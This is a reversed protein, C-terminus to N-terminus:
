AVLSTCPVGYKWVEGAAVNPARFGGSPQIIPGASGQAPVPVPLGPAAPASSSPGSAAPTSSSVAYAAVAGGVLLGSSFLAIPFLSPPM